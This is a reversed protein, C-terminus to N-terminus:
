SGCKLVSQTLSSRSKLQRYWNHGSRDIYDKGTPLPETYRVIISNVHICNKGIEWLSPYTWQKTMVSVIFTVSLKLSTCIDWWRPIHPSMWWDTALKHSSWQSSHVLSCILQQASCCLALFKNFSDCVNKATSWSYFITCAWSKNIRPKASMKHMSKKDSATM